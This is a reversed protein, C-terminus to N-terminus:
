IIEREIEDPATRIDAVAQRVAEPDANRAARIAKSAAFRHLSRVFRGSEATLAQVPDATQLPRIAVGDVLYSRIQSVAEVPDFYDTPLISVVERLVAATIRVEDTEAVVQYVTAAAEQGHRGALPLLERVQSETLRDGIPFLREALPWAEILRYAQSKGIEWRQEVYNEFSDHSARYLRADRIVQLAKGAAWFAVRLNDLAAECTALDTEESVSLQGHGTPSHPEPITNASLVASPTPATTLPPEMSDDIERQERLLEAMSRRKAPM